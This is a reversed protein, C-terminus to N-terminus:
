LSREERTNVEAGLRLGPQLNILTGASGAGGPKFINTTFDAQDESSHVLGLTRFGAHSFM